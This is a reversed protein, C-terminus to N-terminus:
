VTLNYTIASAETDRQGLGIRMLAVIETSDSRPYRTTEITMRRRYGLRWQDWRVALIAGKTNDSQTDVDIKGSAETKRNTAVFHMSASVYIPYGWIRVLKGGEVTPASFVDRTLVEALTLSKWHTNVDLIFAVKSVDLANIGATGMLKVTELFDDVTLVGGDRSNATTTVLCSKRFGNFLMYLDTAAPTGAIDNINTTGGAETDGDIIAHEFQENGATVLQKRLQSVFPIMSDEEMEGTWPVRAGMKALPINKDDTKVKSSTVSAVPFGMTGDHDETEAVKYFTPDTSELPINVSEEGQKAEYAPLNAAVFSGLRIKEWLAQSYGVGVWEDGYDTLDQQMVEDTKFAMGAAKMAQQGMVGVRTKDESLKIVLAKLANESIGDESIRNKRATGLIGAMLAMDGPELEDYKWLDGFKAVYPAEKTPLRNGKAWEEEAEKVAEAKAAEIKDHEAKEATEQAERAERDAKLAEAIGDAVLTKVEDKEMTEVGLNLNTVPDNAQETEARQTNDGKADVEPESEGPQIDPFEIGALEYTSKMVPMAMAYSNAPQRDGGIDFISLEGIPWKLIEGDAAKRVLHTISGSSARAIGEKAAEWVRKAYESAKDLVVRVRWGDVGKNWTEPKVSGIIEPTGQPNRGDPEFGHYYTVLPSKFHSHYLDTKDSFYENDADKGHNPGGFPVALVDLEWDGVAKVSASKTSHELDGTRTENDEPM